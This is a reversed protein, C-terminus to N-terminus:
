KRHKPAASKCSESLEAEHSKLCNIIAGGGPKMDKCFKEVDGKCAERAAGFKEKLEGKKEEMHAKCAASVQGEHEKMCKMIAGHGPEVGACLKKMDERCPGGEGPNGFAPLAVCAFAILFVNKM